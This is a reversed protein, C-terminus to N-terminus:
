HNRLNLNWITLTYGQQVTNIHIAGHSQVPIFPPLMEQEVWGGAQLLNDSIPLVARYPSPETQSLKSYQTWINTHAHTHTHSLVTVMSIDETICVLYKCGFISGFLDLNLENYRLNNRVFQLHWNILSLFSFSCLFSRNSHHSCFKFASYKLIIIIITTEKPKILHIPTQKMGQRSVTVHVVRWPWGTCM